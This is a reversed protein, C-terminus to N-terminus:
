ACVWCYLQHGRQRARRALGALENLFQTLEVPDGADWFEETQSWPVAVDALREASAAALADVLADTLAVVMLEGEERLAVLKGSRPDDMVLDYARGTLLEELTGLQVVPDIGSVSVTDYVPLEPAAASQTLAPAPKRRFRRQRQETPPTVLVQGAARDIVTGAEDDSPASFYDFLVGLASV